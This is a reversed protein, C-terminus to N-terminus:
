TMRRYEALKTVTENWGEKASNKKCKQPEQKKDTHRGGVDGSTLGAEQKMPQM